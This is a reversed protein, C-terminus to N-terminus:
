KIIYKMSKKIEDKVSIDSGLIEEVKKEQRKVRNKLEYLGKPYIGGAEKVKFEIWESTLFDIVSKPIEKKPIYTKTNYDYSNDDRVWVDGMQYVQFMKENWRDKQISTQEEIEKIEPKEGKKFKDKLAEYEKLQAELIALKLRQKALSKAANVLSPFNKMQEKDVFGLLIPVTESSVTQTDGNISLVNFKHVINKGTESSAEAQDWDSIRKSVLEGSKTPVLAMEYSWQYSVLKNGNKGVLPKEFVVIESPKFRSSSTLIDKFESPKKEPEKVNKAKDYEEKSYYYTYDGKTGERKYYKHVLGKQVRIVYKTM